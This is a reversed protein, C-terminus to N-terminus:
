GYLNWHSGRHMQISSPVVVSHPLGTLDESEVQFQDVTEDIEFAMDARQNALLRHLRVGVVRKDTMFQPISAMVKETRRREILAGEMTEAAIHIVSPRDVPVQAVALSLLKIIDKAKKDIAADADVQRTFGCAFDIDDIYTGLVAVECDALRVTKASYILTASTNDPAWDGGLVRTLMPSNAKVYNDAFHQEVAVRDILRARITALDSDHLLHVRKSELKQLPLGAKFVDGLFGAPLDKLEVHFDGQFWIWQQNNVLSQKAADWQRLFATREDNAYQTTRALRKCEVFFEQPGRKVRMDPTKGPGEEILTVDWGAEAYALAVLVEFLIGDPEARQNKLLADLKRNIGEVKYAHQWRSGIAAMFPLARQSQSIDVCGPNELSQQCLFLYWAIEDDRVRVATAEHLLKGVARDQLARIISQRRAMWAEAGLRDIFAQLATRLYAGQQDAEAGHKRHHEARLRDMARVLGLQRASRAPSQRENM